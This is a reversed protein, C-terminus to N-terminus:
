LRLYRVLLEPHSELPESEGTDVFGYRAPMLRPPMLPYVWFGILAIGLM